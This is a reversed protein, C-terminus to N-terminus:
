PLGVRLQSAIEVWFRHVQQIPQIYFASHVGGKFSDIMESISNGSGCVGDIGMGQVNVSDIGDMSREYVGAPVSTDGYFFSLEAWERERLQDASLAARAQDNDGSLAPGAPLQQWGANWDYLLPFHDPQFLEPRSREQNFWWAQAGNRGIVCDAASYTNVRRRVRSARENAAIFLFGRWPNHDPGWSSEQTWRTSFQSWRPVTFGLVNTTLDLPYGDPTAWSILTHDDPVAPDLANASVAAQLMLYTGLGLSPTEKIASSVVMNGLSHALVHVERQATGLDRLFAGVASGIWLANFVNANYQLNQGALSFDEQDSRWTLGIFDFVGAPNTIGQWYLRRFVTAFWNPADDETVTYGHLFVAVNPKTLRNTFSSAAPAGGQPTVPRFNATQYLESLPRLRVYTRDEALVVGGPDRLTLRLRGDGMTLGEILFEAVSSNFTTVNLPAAGVRVTQVLRTQAQTDATSVNQLYQRDTGIKPFLNISPSGPASIVPDFEIFYGYGPPLGSETQGNLIPRVTSLQVRLSAFNELDRPGDIANNPAAPNVWFTFGRTGAPSADENTEDNADLILNNDTDVRLDLDVVTLAVQRCITGPSGGVRLQITTTDLGLSARVGEVEIFAPSTASITVDYTSLRVEGSGGRVLHIRIPDTSTTRISMTRRQGVPVFEHPTLPAANIQIDLDPCVAAQAECNERFSFKSSPPGCDGPPRPTTHDSADMCADSRGCRGVHVIGVGYEGALAVLGRATANANLRLASGLGHVEFPARGGGPENLDVPDRADNFDVVHFAGNFGHMYAVGRCPDFSMSGFVGSLMGLPSVVGLASVEYIRLLQDRTAVFALNSTRTTGGDNWQFGSVTGVRGGLGNLAPIVDTTTIRGRQLPDGVEGTRVIRARNRELAIAFGDLFAVDLFETESTTEGYQRMDGVLGIPQPVDSPTFFEFSELFNLVGVGQPTLEVRDPWTNPNWQEGQLNHGPLYSLARGGVLQPSRPESVDFAQVNSPPQPLSAWISSLGVCLTTLTPDVTCGLLAGPTDITGPVFATLVPQQTAIPGLFRNGVFARNGEVALSLPRGNTATRGLFTPQVLVNGDADRLDYIDLTGNDGVLGTTPHSVAFLRDNVLAVDEANPITITAVRLPEPTNFRLTQAVFPEGSTDSIAASLVVSYTAGLRLNRRAVVRLASRNATLSVDALVVRSEPDLLQVTTSTISAPDLPESFQIILDQDFPLEQPLSVVVPPGPISAPDLPGGAPATLARVVSDAVGENGEFDRARGRFMYVADATPTFSFTGGPGLPVSTFGAGQNLELTLNAVGVNDIATVTVTLQMGTRSLGCMVDGGSMAITVVPPEIDGLASTVAAPLTSPLVAAATLQAISTSPPAPPGVVGRVNTRIVRNFQPDNIDLRSAVVAGAESAGAAADPTVFTGTADTVAVFPATAEAGPLSAVVADFVPLGSSLDRRVTGSFFTMPAIVHLLTMTAPQLIGPFPPSDTSLVLQGGEDKVTASEIVELREVDRRPNQVTSVGTGAHIDARPGGLTVPRSRVVLYLQGPTSGAPAPMALRVPANFRETNGVIRIRDAVVFSAQFASVVSANGQLDEPLGFPETVRVVSLETAGLLSGSPVILQLGDPSTVTGGARGIVASLVAGTSDRRLLPGPDVRTENGSRDRLLIVLQDAIDAQVQGTFSGDAAVTALVTFGTTENLLIVVDDPNVSGLTASITVLGSADPVSATIRGAAIPAPPARDETRLREVIPANVLARGDLDTIASTLTLRYISDQILPSQPRITLVDGGEDIFVRIAIPELTTGDERDLTLGAALTAEVVPESFQVVIEAARSVSWHEVGLPLGFPIVTSVGGDTMFSLSYQLLTTDISAPVDIVFPGVPTPIDPALPTVPIAAPLVTLPGTPGRVNVILSGAVMPITGDNRVAMTLEIREGANVQGNGNGNSQGSNDDDVIPAPRGLLVIPGAVNGEIRPPRVVISEIRPPTLGIVIEALATGTTGQVRAQDLSTAATALLSFPGVPSVLVFSGSTGTISVFPLSQIEVVHGDQRGASDRATGTVGALSGDVLLFAYRGGSRVGTVGVGGVAPMTTLANGDIRGLTVFVLRERGRVNRVEAVVVQSGTPAHSAGGGLQLLLPFASTRGALDLELAGILSTGVPTDLRLLAPDLRRLDVPVDDPFSGAPVVVRSGDNSQVGGGNTGIVSRNATTARFMAVTITGESLESAGFTRSPAIPFRSAISRGSGDDPVRYGVFDQSTDLPSGQQGDRLIFLEMFDGRLPSGSRLATSSTVTVVAAAPTPDDARGVPPTVTGNGSATLPIAIPTAAELAAGPAPVAPAGDGSDPLLLAYQGANAINEVLLPGNAPITVEQVAVWQSLADDYRAVVGPRGSAAGSHDALRLMAPNAFAVSSVVDVISLPSWGQPFLLRPAQESIATFRISADTALAGPPISLGDGSPNQLNAGFLANVSQAPALPTLRADFADAFQGQAAAVARIASTFGDRSVRVLVPTRGPNLLYRGRADTQGTALVQGTSPDIAEATAGALPLGRSDDYVEGAVIGATAATGSTTFRSSFSSLLPTGDVALVGTVIIDIATGDPFPSLPNLTATLGDAAVTVTVPLLTDGARAFMTTPSVTAPDVPRSFTVVAPQTPAVDTAGSVPGFDTISLLSDTFYVTRALNSSNGAADQCSISLLNTGPTLTVDRSFTGTAITAAGGSVLCTVPTSDIVSGRVTITEVTLVDREPPASLEVTPAATDRVVARSATAQDGADNRARALLANEGEILPVGAAEFTGGSVVALVNQVIVRATPDSVTGRVTISPTGVTQGAAPETITLSLQSPTVVGIVVQASASHSGGHDDTVTVTATFTGSTAYDHTPSVGTGTGGDGFTWAYQLPDGDGDTSGAASLTVPTNVVGSYPGGASANPVQNLRITVEASASATGGRGDSVTVSATFTNATTYTHTPSVGTGTAGDGFTWTYTLTDDDPDTSDAASFTVADNVRASYPGGASASPVQNAAQVTVQASASASGGHSDSVTVTATFTNATTYTHAPSVGTGTAGDGFTWAYTLADGDPDTSGAASFTVADNVRASYPGGASATPVQNARVVTFGNVREAQQVGTRVAITRPGQTAAGNIVIQATAQTVGNVTVPGFAGEAGGGVSIGPGFSAQTSGQVFNTNTAVLVVSLTQGANASDPTVSTLAAPPTVTLASSNSSTFAIGTSTTGSLRVRYATPSGVVITQPVQFTVRRTTGTILQVASATVSGSPGPGATAPELTLTVNAPPITGAPFNSGTVTVLQVGAQAAAPSTAPQLTVNTQASLAAYVIVLIALGCLWVGSRLRRSM